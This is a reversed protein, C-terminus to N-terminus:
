DAFPCSNELGPRVTPKSHLKLPGVSDVELPAESCWRKHFKSSTYQRLHKIHEIDDPCVKVLDTEEVLDWKSAYPRLIEAVFFPFLKPDVHQAPGVIIKKASQKSIRLLDFVHFLRLRTFHARRLVRSQSEQRWQPDRLFMVDMHYRAGKSHETSHFEVRMTLDAKDDSHKFDM